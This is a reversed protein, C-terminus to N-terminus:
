LRTASLLRAQTSKFSPWGSAARTRAVCASRRAGSFGSMRSVAPSAARSLPLTWSLIWYKFFATLRAGVSVPAEPAHRRANDLLNGVIRELSRRDTSISAISEDIKLEAAVARATTQSDGSLMILRLGHRHLHAVAQPSTKKVPDSVALLGTPRRDSAVYMVTWGNHQWRDAQEDLSELAEGAVVVRAERHLWQAELAGHAPGDVHRRDSAQAHERLRGRPARVAGLVM